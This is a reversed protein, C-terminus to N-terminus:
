NVEDSLHILSLISGGFAEAYFSLTGQM